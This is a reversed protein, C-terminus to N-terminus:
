FEIQSTMPTWTRLDVGLAHLNCDDYVKKIKLMLAVFLALLVMAGIFALFLILSSAGGNMTSTVPCSEAQNAMSALVLGTITGVGSKPVCIFQQRRNFHGTPSVSIGGSKSNSDAVLQAPIFIAKVRTPWTTNSDLNPFEQKVM